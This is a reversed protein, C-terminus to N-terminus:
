NVGYAGSKVGYKIIKITDGRRAATPGDKTETDAISRLALSIEGGSNAEALRQAQGPTLELTATNGEALKKGDKAEILQGIALVRINHFLTESQFEEGARTRLRRTHIVDVRDNPLILRGVGTEEKIRTSIARMGQPLIAALVGGEGARVLKAATVPEGSLMPARAVSDKLEQMANPRNGRQIYGAGVANVPWEMWRFSEPGTIQGLGIEGRAVLVQTTNTTVEERVVKTPQRILSMVGFFAGLGCVGAVAVGLLQARKM